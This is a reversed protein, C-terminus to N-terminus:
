PRNSARSSQALGIQKVLYDTDVIRSRFMIMVYHLQQAPKDDLSRVCRSLNTRMADSFRCAGKGGESERDVVSSSRRLSLARAIFGIEIRLFDVSDSRNKRWIPYGSINPKRM